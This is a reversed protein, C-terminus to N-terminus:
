CFKKIDRNLEIAIERIEKLTNIDTIFLVYSDSESEIIAFICDGDTRQNSLQKIWDTVKADPDLKEERLEFFDRNDIRDISFLFFDLDCDKRIESVVACEELIMVFSIWVLDDTNIDEKIGREDYLFKNKKYYDRPAELMRETLYKADSSGECEGFLSLLKLYKEKTDKSVKNNKGTLKDFIGM